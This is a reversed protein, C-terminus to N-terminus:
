VKLENVNMAVVSICNPSLCETGCPQRNISTCSQEKLWRQIEKLLSEEGAARGENLESEFIFDKGDKNENNMLEFLKPFKEHYAHVM